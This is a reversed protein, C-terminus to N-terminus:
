ATIIAVWAGKNNGTEHLTENWITQKFIDEKGIKADLDGLL